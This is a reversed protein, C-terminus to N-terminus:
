MYINMGKVQQYGNSGDRKYQQIAKLQSKMNDSLQNNSLLLHGLTNNTKLGDIISQIGIINNNSLDLEKLTKNTKLAEGISQVDIINKNRCLYLRLLSNNTKLGEGISQVNTINNNNLNLVQLTNNTQLLVGIALVDEDTLNQRKLDVSMKGDFEKEWKKIYAASPKKIADHKQQKKNEMMSEYNELKTFIRLRPLFTDEQLTTVEGIISDIDKYENADKNGYKEDRINQILTTLEIEECNGSRVAQVMNKIKGQKNNRLAKIGSQHKKLETEFRPFIHFVKENGNWKLVDDIQQERALLFSIINVGEDVSNDSTTIFYKLFFNKYKKKYKALPFYKIRGTDINNSDNALSAM